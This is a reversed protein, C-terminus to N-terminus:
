EVARQALRKDDRGVSYLQGEGSDRFAVATFSSRSSNFGNSHQVFFVKFKSKHLSYGNRTVMVTRMRWRGVKPFHESLRPITIGSDIQHDDALVRIITGMRTLDAVYHGKLRIVQVHRLTSRSILSRHM